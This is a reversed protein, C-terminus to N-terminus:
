RRPPPAFGARRLAGVGRPSRLEALFRRALDPRDSGRVVAAAYVAEPRLADPLELAGLRGRAAVADSRYVFGVDAAGSAVKAIVGKVDPEESAVRALIRSSRVPGLRGLVKRTYAGVPVSASGIVLRTGPAELNALTDIPSGSPVALVLRNGAFAVPREVLGERFLREPIETNAAALVDPRAGGRIQSVLEDSGGFSFRARVDPLEADLAEFAETLSAAASVTLEGAGQERESQAGCAALSVVTLLVAASLAAALSRRM